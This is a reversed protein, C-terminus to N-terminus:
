DLAKWINYRADENEDGAFIVDLVYDYLKHYRDAYYKAYQEHIEKTFARCPAYRDDTMAYHEWSKMNVAFLLAIMYEESFGWSKTARQITDEVTGTTKASDINAQECYEAISLDSTFTTEQLDPCRGEMNRNFNMECFGAYHFVNKFNGTLTTPEDDIAFIDDINDTGDFVATTQIGNETEKAFHRSIIEM